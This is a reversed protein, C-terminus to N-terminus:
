DLISASNCINFWIQFHSSNELFQNSGRKNIITQLRIFISRQKRQLHMQKKYIQTAEHKHQIKM